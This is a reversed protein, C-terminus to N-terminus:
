PDAGPLPDAGGPGEAPPQPHQGVVRGGLPRCQLPQGGPGAAEGRLDAQGLGARQQQVHGGAQAQEAPGGGQDGLDLPPEQLQAATAPQGQGRGGQACQDQCPGPGPESCPESRALRASLAARPARGM